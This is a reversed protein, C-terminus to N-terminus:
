EITLSCCAPAEARVRLDAHNWLKEYRVSEYYPIGNRWAAPDPGRFFAYTGPGRREGVIRVGTRAGEFVLRVASERAEGTGAPRLCLLLGDRKLGALVGGARVAFRIDEPWQGRNEVFHARSPSRADYLVSPPTPQRGGFAGEARRSLEDGGHVLAGALAVLWVTTFLRGWGLQRVVSTNGNADRSEQATRSSVPHSSANM